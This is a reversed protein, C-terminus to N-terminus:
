VSPPYFKKRLESEPKYNFVKKPPSHNNSNVPTLQLGRLTNKM